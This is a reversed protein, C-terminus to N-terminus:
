RGLEEIVPWDSPYTPLLLPQSVHSTSQVYNLVLYYPNEVQVNHLDRDGATKETKVGGGKKGETRENDRRRQWKRQM